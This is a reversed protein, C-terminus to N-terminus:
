ENSQLMYTDSLKWEKISKYRETTEDEDRKQITPEDKNKKNKQRQSTTTENTQKNETTLNKTETNDARQRKQKRNTNNVWRKTTTLAGWWWKKKTKNQTTREDKQWREKTKHRWRTMAKTTTHRNTKLDISEDMWDKLANRTRLKDEKWIIILLSLKVDNNSSM